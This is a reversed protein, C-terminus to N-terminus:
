KKAPEKSAKADLADWVDMADLADLYDDMSWLGEVEVLTVSLRACGLIKWLGWDLHEPVDISVSGKSHVVPRRKREGDRRFFLLLEGRAHVGAM